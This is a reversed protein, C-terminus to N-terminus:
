MVAQAALEMVQTKLHGLMYQMPELQGLLQTMMLAGEIGAIILTVVAWPGYREMRKEEFM